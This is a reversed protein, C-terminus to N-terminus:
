PGFGSSVGGGHDSEGVVVQGTPATDIWRLDEDVLEFLDSAAELLADPRQLFEVFLGLRGRRSRLCGGGQAPLDVHGSRGLDVKGTHDVLGTEYHGAVRQGLRLGGLGGARQQRFQFTQELRLDIESRFSYTM